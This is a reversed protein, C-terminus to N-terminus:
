GEGLSAAFLDNHKTGAPSLHSEMLIVDRVEVKGFVCNGAKELVSLAQDISGSSRIRGLTLHPIFDRVGPEFGRGSLGAEIDRHLSVLEKSSSVGAWVVRPRRLNPFGGVGVVKFTFPSHSFVVEKLVEKVEDVQQEDIEGLFKITLHMSETSVWRVDAGATKLTSLLKEVSSIVAESMSVAIFCRRGPVNDM